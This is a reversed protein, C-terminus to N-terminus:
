QPLSIWRDEAVLVESPRFRAKYRMKGSGAVYFGLYYYPLGRRRCYEVEWLVSFTGLSRDAFDPDFYMYVSSLGKPCEDAISVGILHDGLLYRFELTKTPSDGLFERFSEFTREMTDDHQFGLYRLYLDFRQPTPRPEGVEVVVDANRRQVRRMSHTPQFRDVIVRTQRCERCGRCRPRYVVRGSRRFGRALLREYLSGDLHDTWYVENRSLLGPLYPCAHEPTVNRLTDYSAQSSPMPDDSTHLGNM